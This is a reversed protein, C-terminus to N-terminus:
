MAKTWYTFKTEDWCLFTRIRHICIKGTHLPDTRGEQLNRHLLKKALLNFLVWLEILQSTSIAALTLGHWNPELVSQGERVAWHLHRLLFVTFFAHHIPFQFLELKESLTGRFIVLLALGHVAVSLTNM